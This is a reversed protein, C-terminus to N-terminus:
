TAPSRPGSPPPVGFRDAFQAPTLFHRYSPSAPDHEAALLAKEGAVDPRNVTVVLRMTTGAPAPGLDTANALGPLVNQTITFLETSAQATAPVALALCTAALLAFARRPTM